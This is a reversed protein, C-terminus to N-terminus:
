EGQQLILYPRLKQITSEKVLKLMALDDVSQFSGHQFRYAIISKALTRGIYPHSALTKEDSLNLSLKRPIFDSSIFAKSSLQAVVASDLGYVENLQNMSTFGGLKDRYKVIRLALKPGIGYIKELQITDAQNIDFLAVTAPSSRTFKQAQESSNQKKSEPLNIYAYVMRYWATDIGYIKLLDSKILFKGGAKRYRVLKQITQEKLGLEALQTEDVKNPDFLTLAKKEIMLTDVPLTWKALVSDLQNPEMFSPSERAVFLKQYVPQSFIIVFLLPILILMGNIERRSVKLLARLWAKLRNM